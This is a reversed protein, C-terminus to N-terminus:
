AMTQQSVGNADPPAVMFEFRKLWVISHGQGM